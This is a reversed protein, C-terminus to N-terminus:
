GNNLIEEEFIEYGKEFCKIYLEYREIYKNFFGSACGQEVIKCINTKITKYTGSIVQTDIEQEKVPLKDRISKELISLTLQFKDDIGKVPLFTASVAYGKYQDQPLDIEITTGKNIYHFM